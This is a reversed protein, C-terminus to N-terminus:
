RSGALHAGREGGMPLRHWPGIAQSWWKRVQRVEVGPASFDGRWSVAAFQEASADAYTGDPLHLLYADDPRPACGTNTTAAIVRGFRDIRVIVTAPVTVTVVQSTAEAGPKSPASSVSPPTTATGCTPDETLLSWRQNGHEPSVTSSSEGLVGNLPVLM